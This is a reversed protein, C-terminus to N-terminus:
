VKVIQVAADPIDRLFRDIVSGKLFLEVRSRQTQGFIVHTVGERRAFEILGDAPRDAHVRVVTAGLSEALAINRALSARHDAHDARAAGAPTEVYM